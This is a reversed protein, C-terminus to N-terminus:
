ELKISTVINLIKQFGTRTDSSSGSRGQDEDIVQIQHSEWGLKEVKDKLRYQIKTIPPLPRQDM